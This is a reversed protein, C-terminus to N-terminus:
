YCTNEAFFQFERFKSSTSNEEFIFLNNKKLNKHIKLVKRLNIIAKWKKNYSGHKIIKGDKDSFIVYLKEKNIM